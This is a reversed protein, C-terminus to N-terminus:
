PADGVKALTLREVMKPNTDKRSEINATLELFYGPVAPSFVVVFTSAEYGQMKRVNPDKMYPKLVLKYADIEKGDFESKVPELTHKELFAKRFRDKLYNFEGASSVHQFKQVSNKLYWVFIPNLTLGTESWRDQAREGFFVQMSVDRKGQADVKDVTLRIDDAYATGLLQENSVNHEYRYTVTRGKGVLELHPTEFILKHASATPAEAAALLAAPQLILAATLALGRMRGLM